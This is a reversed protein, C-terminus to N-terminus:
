MTKREFRLAIGHMEATYSPWVLQSVRGSYGAARPDAPSVLMGLSNVISSFEFATSITQSELSLISDNYIM